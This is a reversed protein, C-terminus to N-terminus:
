AVAERARRQIVHWCLSRPEFTLECVREGVTMVLYHYFKKDGQGTVWTRGWSTIPMRQGQWHFALPILRGDEEFRAEVATPISMTGSDRRM